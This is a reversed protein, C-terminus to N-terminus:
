KLRKMVRDIGKKWLTVKRPKSLALLLAVTSEPDQGILVLPEKCPTFTARKM